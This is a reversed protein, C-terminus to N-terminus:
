AEACDFVRAFDDLYKASKKAECKGSKKQMKLQRGRRRGRTKITIRTYWM